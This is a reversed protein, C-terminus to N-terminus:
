QLLFVLRIHRQLPQKPLVYFFEQDDDKSVGITQFPRSCTRKDAVRELRYARLKM